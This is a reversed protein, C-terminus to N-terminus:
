PTSEALFVPQESWGERSWYRPRLLAQMEPSAPDIGLLDIILPEWQADSIHLERDFQVHRLAPRKRRTLGLSAPNADSVTVSMFTAPNNAPGTTVVAAQWSDRYGPTVVREWAAYMLRVGPPPFAPLRREPAFLDVVQGHRRWDGEVAIFVPKSTNSEPPTLFNCTGGIYLEPRGDGDRDATQASVLQGPHWLRFLTENKWDLVRVTAPYYATSHEVLVIEASGDADLDACHVDVPQFPDFNRGEYSFGSTAPYTLAAALSGDDRRLFIKLPNTEQRDQRAIV